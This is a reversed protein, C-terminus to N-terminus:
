TYTKSSDYKYKITNLNKIQQIILGCCGPIVNQIFISYFDQITKVQHEFETNRCVYLKKVNNYNDCTVM